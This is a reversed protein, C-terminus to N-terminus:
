VTHFGLIIKGPCFPVFVEMESLRIQVWGFMVSLFCIAINKNYLGVTENDKDERTKNKPTKKGCLKFYLVCNFM